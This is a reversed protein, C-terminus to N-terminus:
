EYNVVLKVDSKAYHHSYEGVVCSTAPESGANHLCKHAQVYREYQLQTNRHIILVYKCFFHM